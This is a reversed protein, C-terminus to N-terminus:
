QPTVKIQYRQNRRTGRIVIHSRSHHVQTNSLTDPTDVINHDGDKIDASIIETGQSTTTKHKVNTLYIDDKLDELVEQTTKTTM